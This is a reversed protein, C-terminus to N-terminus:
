DNKKYEEINWQFEFFTNENSEIEYFTFGESSHYIGKIKFIEDNGNFITVLEGISYDDTMKVGTNITIISDFGEELSPPQYSAKMKGVVNVSIIKDPRSNLRYSLTEDDCEFIIAEKEYNEPVLDLIKKRSKITLNTRDIVINKNSKCALFLTEFFEKTVKDINDKFVENYTKGKEKAILELAVDTSLVIFYDKGAFKKLWTSKGVGPIGVLLTIYPM